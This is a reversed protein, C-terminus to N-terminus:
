GLQDIEKDDMAGGSYGRHCRAFHNLATQFTSCIGNVMTILGNGEAVAKVSAVLVDISSEKYYFTTRIVLHWKKLSPM